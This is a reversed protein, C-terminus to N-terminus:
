PFYVPILYVCVYLRNSNILRSSRAVQLNSKWLNLESLKEADERLDVEGYNSHGTEPSMTVRYTTHEMAVNYIAPLFYIFASRNGAQSSLHVLLFITLISFGLSQSGPRETVKVGSSPASILLRLFLWSCGTGCRVNVFRWRIKQRKCSTCCSGPFLSLISFLDTNDDLLLLLVM